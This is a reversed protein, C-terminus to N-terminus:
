LSGLLKNNKNSYLLKNHFIRNFRRMYFKSRLKEYFTLRIFLILASKSFNQEFDMLLNCNPNLKYYCRLSPSIIVPPYCSSACAM